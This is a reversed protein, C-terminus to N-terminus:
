DPVRQASGSRPRQALAPGTDVGKSQLFALVRELVATRTIKSTEINLDAHARAHALREKEMRLMAASWSVDPRRIRQTGLTAELYILIQPPHIRQWMDQVQSHEQGAARANIGNIRLGQVLTTKGAASTGTVKVQKLLNYM